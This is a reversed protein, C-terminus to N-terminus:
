SGLTPVNPTAAKPMQERKVARYVTFRAVTLLDALEATTYEGTDLPAVLHAEQRHNLKPQKGRLCRKAKAVKMDERTRSRILDSAFEAVMALVDFLLQGVPDADNLRHVDLLEISRHITRRLLTSV